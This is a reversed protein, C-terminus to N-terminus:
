LTLRRLLFKPQDFLLSRGPLLQLVMQQIRLSTLCSQQADGEPTRWRYFAVAALLM